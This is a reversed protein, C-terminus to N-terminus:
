NTTITDNIELERINEGKKAGAKVEAIRVFSSKAAAEALAYNKHTSIIENQSFGNHGYQAIVAYM